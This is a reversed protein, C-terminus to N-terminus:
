TDSIYVKFFEAEILYLFIIYLYRNNPIKKM